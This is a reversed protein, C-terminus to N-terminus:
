RYSTNALKGSNRAGNAEIEKKQKKSSYSQYENEAEALVEICNYVFPNKIDNIIGLKKNLLLRCYKRYVNLTFNDIFAKPCQSIYESQKSGIQFRFRPNEQHGSCNRLERWEEPCDECDYSDFQDSCVLWM